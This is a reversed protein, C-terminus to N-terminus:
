YCQLAQWSRSFDSAALDDHRIWFYLSGTDGWEFHEGDSELQLLLTWEDSAIELAAVRPDGFGDPGGADIGNTVLQAELQMDGQINLAHGGLRHGIAGPRPSGSTFVADALEFYIDTEDDTWPLGSEAVAAELVEYALSGIVPLTLAAWFELRHQPLATEDNPAPHRTLVADAPFLYVRFGDQERPDYGWPQEEVDYFFSLLGTQPLQSFPDMAAVEALDVQLLFDLPRGANAPWDFGAPVDAGGGLRSAGLPLEVGRAVPVTHFGTAPKLFHTLVETHDALDHAHALDSFTSM